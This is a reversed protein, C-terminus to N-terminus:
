DDLHDRSGYWSFWTRGDRSTCYNGITFMEINIMDVIHNVNSRETEPTGHAHKYMGTQDLKVHTNWMHLVTKCGNYTFTSSIVGSWWTTDRCSSSDCRHMSLSFVKIKFKVSPVMKYHLQRGLFFLICLFIFMVHFWFINCSIAMMMKHRQDGGGFCQWTRWWWRSAVKIEMYADNDDRWSNSRCSDSGCLSLTFCNCPWLPKPLKLRHRILSESHEECLTTRIQSTWVKHHLMFLTQSWFFM